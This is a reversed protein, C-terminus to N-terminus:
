MDTKELKWDIVKRLGEELTVETKFELDEWAKETSGIRNNVLTKDSTNIFKIPLDRKDMLKM